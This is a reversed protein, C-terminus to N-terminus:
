EARKWNNNELMEAPITVGLEEALESKSCILIGKSISDGDRLVSQGDFYGRGDRPKDEWNVYDVGM